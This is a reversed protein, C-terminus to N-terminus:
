LLAVHIVLTGCRCASCCGSGLRRILLVLEHCFVEPEALVDRRMTSGRTIVLPLWAFIPRLRRLVLRWYVSCNSGVSDSLFCLNWLGVTVQTRRRRPMSIREMSFDELGICMRGNIVLLVLRNVHVARGLMVWAQVFRLRYQVASTWCIIRVIRRCRDWSSLYPGITRDYDFFGWCFRNPVFRVIHTVLIRRMANTLRVFRGTWRSDAHKRFVVICSLSKWKSLSLLITLLSPIDCVLCAFTNLVNNSLRGVLSDLRESPSESRIVGICTLRSCILRVLMMWALWEVRGVHGHCGARLGSSCRISRNHTPHIIDPFLAICIWICALHLDWLLLLWRLAIQGFKNSCLRYEAWVTSGWSSWTPTILSDLTVNSSISCLPDTIRLSTAARYSLALLMWCGEWKAMTLSLSIMIWVKTSIHTQLVVLPTDTFTAVYLRVWLSWSWGLRSNSSSNVIKDVCLFLRVLRVQALDISCRPSFDIRVDWRGIFQVVWRLLLPWLGRIWWGTLRVSDSVRALLWIVWLLSELTAIFGKEGYWSCESM